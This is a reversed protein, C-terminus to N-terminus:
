YCHISQLGVWALNVFILHRCQLQSFRSREPRVQFWEGQGCATFLSIETATYIADMRIRLTLSLGKSGKAKTWQTARFHLIYLFRDNSSGIGMKTNLGVGPPLEGGVSNAETPSEKKRPLGGGAGTWGQDSQLISSHTLVALQVRLPM